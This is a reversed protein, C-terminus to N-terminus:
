DYGCTYVKCHYRFKHYANFGDRYKTDKTQRFLERQLKFGEESGYTFLVANIANKVKLYKKMDKNHNLM